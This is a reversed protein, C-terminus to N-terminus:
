ACCRVEQLLMRMADLQLTPVREAVFRLRQAKTRHTTCAHPAHRLLFICRRKEFFASDAAAQTSSCLLSFLFSVSSLVLLHAVCRGTYNSIYSELDFNPSPKVETIIRDEPARRETAPAEAV